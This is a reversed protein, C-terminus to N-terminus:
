LSEMNKYTEIELSGQLRDLILTNAVDGTINLASRFMNILPDIAILLPIYEFPLGWISFFLPLIALAGGPIGATGIAMLPSLFALLLYDELAFFGGTIKTVFLVSLVLYIALGEMNISAGLPLVFSAKSDSIGLKKNAIKITTPLTAKSSGTSLAIFQYELSKIFFPLVPLKSIFRIYLGLFLYQIFYALFLTMVFYFLMQFVKKEFHATLHAAFFFVTFPALLQIKQMISLFLANFSRVMTLITKKQKHPLTFIATAMLIALLTVQITSDNVFAGLLNKPLILELFSEFSVSTFAPTQYGEVLLETQGSTLIFSSFIGILAAVLGTLLFLGGSKLGIKYLFKPSSLTTMGSILSFFIFPLAITKLLNIYVGGLSRLIGTWEPDIYVGVLVGLVSSIIIQYIVKM